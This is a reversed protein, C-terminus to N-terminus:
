RARGPQEHYVTLCALFKQFDRWAEPRDASPYYPIVRYPVAREPCLQVAWRADIRETAHEALYAAEYAATQLHAGADAPDGVKLDILIRKGEWHGGTGEFIGDLTGAYDHRPHYVRRERTTPILQANERFTAWAQVYPEVRPDVTSWDLDDDDFSHADAHVSVGLNRKFEITSALQSSMTSLTDFNVSVGVAEIIQTVSPVRRGDPLRYVHLEPEFTLLTAGTM